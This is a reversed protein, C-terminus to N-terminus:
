SAKKGKASDAEQRQKEEACSACLHHPVGASDSAQTKVTQPSGCGACPFTYRGM